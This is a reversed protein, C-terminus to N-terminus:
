SGLCSSCVYSKSILGRSTTCESCAVKGCKECVRQHKGCLHKGCVNCTKICQFCAPAHCEHCYNLIHQRCLWQSCTSCQVGDADCLLTKCVACKHIHDDCMASGCIDCVAVALKESSGLLGRIKHSPCISITDIIMSQGILRRCYSKGRSNFEIDWFPIYVPGCRELIIEDPKAVFEKTHIVPPNGGKGKVQYRMEHRNSETILDIASRKAERWVVTNPLVVPNGNEKDGIGIDQIITGALETSVAIHERNNEGYMKSRFWGGQTRLSGDGNQMFKDEADLGDIICFGSDGIKKVDGNPLARTAKLNFRIRYYPRWMLLAKDVSVSSPNWLRLATANYYDVKLPVALGLVEKISVGRRGSKVAFLQEVIEDREWVEIGNQEAVLRADETVGNYAVFLGNLGIEHLASAFYIMKERTVVGEYNKCEVAKRIVHGNNIKSCLIDIEWTLSSGPLRVNRQTTYGNGEMIEQIWSEFKTGMEKTSLVAEVDNDQEVTSNSSLSNNTEAPNPTM